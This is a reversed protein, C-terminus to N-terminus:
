QGKAMKEQLALADANHADLALAAAAANKAETMMGAALAAKATLAFASADDPWRHTGEEAAKYGEATHAPVSIALEVYSRLDALSGGEILLRRQELALDINGLEQAYEALLIRADRLPEFGNIIAYQLFTVANQPDGLAAHTRALFYQTEPKSPDLSYAQELATLAQAPKDSALACFGRVIWADRYSSQEQLVPELLRQAISCQGIEALARALLTQRHISQGGPFLDFERYAKEIVQAEARVDPNDSGVAQALAARAADHDGRDIAILVQALATIPLDNSRQIVHTAEEPLGRALALMAEAFLADPSEPDTRRLARITEAAGDFNERQLELHMLRRLALVGGGADVSARYREEAKGLQGRMELIEGQRLAALALSQDAPTTGFIRTQM